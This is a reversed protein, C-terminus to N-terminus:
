PSATARRSRCAAHRSVFRSTAPAARPDDALARCLRALDDPTDVDFWPSVCATRLGAAGARRLTLEFIEATSWPMAEFLAPLDARVGILYYGGDEAPGLVVDVDGSAILDMAQRLVSAPLTPTDTGIAIAAGHGAGLLAALTSRLRAGLDRGRQPILVFGPALREFLEREAAPAFAIAPTAGPLDRLQAIRDRLFCRALAAAERPALPPCLRTKVAGARPAKAMIAVAVDDSM